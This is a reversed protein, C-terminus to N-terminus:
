IKIEYNKDLFKIEYGYEKFTSIIWNKLRNEFVKMTIQQKLNPDTSLIEKFEEKSIYSEERSFIRIGLALDKGKIKVKLPFPLPQRPTINALAGLLESPYGEKLLTQISIPSESYRTAEKLLYKNLKKEALEVAQKYKKQEILNSIQHFVSEVEKEEKLSLHQPLTIAISIFSVKITKANTKNKEYLEEILKNIEDETPETSLYNKLKEDSTILRSIIFQQQIESIYDQKYLTEKQIEEKLKEDTISRILTNDDPLIINREKGIIKVMKEILLKELLEKNIEQPTIHEKNTIKSLLLDKRKEFELLTIIETNGISIIVKDLLRTQQSHLIAPIFVLISFLILSIQIKKM